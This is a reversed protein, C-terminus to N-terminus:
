NPYLTYYRYHEHLIFTKVVRGELRICHQLNMYGDTIFSSCELDRSLFEHGILNLYASRDEGERPGNVEQNFLYILEPNTCRRLYL